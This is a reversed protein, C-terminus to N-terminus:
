QPMPFVSSGGGGLNRDYTPQTVDRLVRHEWAHWGVSVLLAVALLWRVIRERM